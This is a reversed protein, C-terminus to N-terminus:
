NTYLFKGTEMSFGRSGPLQFNCKSSFNLDVPDAKQVIVLTQNHSIDHVPICHLQQVRFVVVVGVGSCLLCAVLLLLSHIAGYIDMEVTM